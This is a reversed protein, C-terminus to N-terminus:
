SDLDMKNMSSFIEDLEQKHVKEGLEDLEDEHEEWYRFSDFDSDYLVPRQNGVYLSEVRRFFWAKKHLDEPYDHLRFASLLYELRLVPFVWENGGNHYKSYCCEKDPIDVELFVYSGFEEETPARLIELHRQIMVGNRSYLTYDANKLRMGYIPARGGLQEIDPAYNDLKCRRLSLDPVYRGVEMICQFVLESQATLLRM